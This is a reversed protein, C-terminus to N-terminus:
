FDIENVVCLKGIVERQPVFSIFHVEGAASKIFIGLVILSSLQSPTEPFLSFSFINKILPNQLHWRPDLVSFLLYFLLKIVMIKIVKCYSSWPFIFYLTSVVQPVPGLGHHRGESPTGARLGLPLVLQLPLLPSGRVDGPRPHLEVRRGGWLWCHLKTVDDYVLRAEVLSDRSITQFLDELSTLLQSCWTWLMSSCASLESSWGESSAVRHWLTVDWILLGSSFLCITQASLCVYAASPLSDLGAHQQM